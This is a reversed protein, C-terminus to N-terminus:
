QLSRHGNSLFFIYVCICLCVYVCMYTYGKLIQNNKKICKAYQFLQWVSAM